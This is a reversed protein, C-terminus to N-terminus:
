MRKQVWITNQGLLKQEIVRATEARLEKPLDFHTGLSVLVHQRVKDNVRQNEVLQLIPRKSTPSKKERFFM